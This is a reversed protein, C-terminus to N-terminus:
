LNLTSNSYGLPSAGMASDMPCFSIASFAPTERVVTDTTRLLRGVGTIESRVRRRTSFTALLMPYRGRGLIVKGDPVCLRPM